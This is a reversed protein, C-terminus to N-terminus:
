SGKICTEPSPRSDRPWVTPLDCSLQADASRGHSPHLETPEVWHAIFSSNPSEVRNLDVGHLPAIV